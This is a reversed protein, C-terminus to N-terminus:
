FFARAEMRAQHVPLGSGEKRGNYTLSLQVNATIRYDFTLQWLFSQGVAKGETFEYPLSAAPDTINMLTVEDRKLEVHLQGVGPFSQVVRIGEENIDATANKGGFSNIVETVGINFGTELNVSPRYSFDSLLTNSVLDREESSQVSSSMQDIKNIIDTQNSIETVIQSRIRVSQEKQFTREISSVYQTLGYQENYRFRFSIDSNNEFLFVDQTIQQSGSLTTQNNLFHSFNLLYIQKTDTDESREDVRLYTETSIVRLAKSLWASANTNLHAPQLKLRVSAKLDAVPYLQDSPIYVVIYDGDYTTLAFDNEDVVGNGNVDGIYKYNGSGKAVRIFIREM